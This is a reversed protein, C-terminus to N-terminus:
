KSITSGGGAGGCVSAAGGCACGNWGIQGPAFGDGLSFSPFKTEKITGDPLVEIIEPNGTEFYRTTIRMGPPLPVGKASLAEVTM